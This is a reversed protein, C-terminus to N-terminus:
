KEPMYKTIFRQLIVATQARSCVDQPNLRGSAGTVIGASVAWTMAPLAYSALTGADPYAGLDADPAGTDVGSWGAFRSLMVVLQERTISEYPGFTGDTRGSAIGSRVAWAIYGASWGDEPIDSFGAEETPDIDARALRALASVFMARTMPADPRFETETVGYLFRRDAALMVAEYYWDGEAVDRYPYRVYYDPPFRLVTPLGNAYYRRVSVTHRVGSGTSDILIEGGTDTLYTMGDWVVMAGVIPNGAAGSTGAAAPAEDDSYFRVVGDTLMRSLDIEPYQILTPDGYYVVIDDGAAVPLAKLSRGTNEGNIRIMWRDAFPPGLSSEKLGGVATIVPAAGGDTVIAPVDPLSNYTDAVDRMTADSVANLTLASNYYLTRDMGEVRLSVVIGAGAAADDPWSLLVLAAAAAICRAIKRM